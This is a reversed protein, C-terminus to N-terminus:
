LSKIKKYFIKHKRKLVSKINKICNSTHTEKMNPYKEIVTYILALNEKIIDIDNEWLLNIFNEDICKPYYNQQTICYKGSVAGSKKNDLILEQISRATQLLFLNTQNDDEYCKSLKMIGNVCSLLIHQYKEKDQNLIWKIGLISPQQISFIDERTEGWGWRLAGQFYSKERFYIINNYISIKTNEEKLSLMALFIVTSIPEIIKYEIKKSLEM